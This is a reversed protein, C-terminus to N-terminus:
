QNAVQTIKKGGFSMHNSIATTSGNSYRQNKSGELNPDFTGSHPALIPQSPGMQVYNTSYASQNAGPGAKVALKKMLANMDM